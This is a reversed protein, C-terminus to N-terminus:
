LRPGRPQSRDPKPIRDLDCKRWFTATRTALVPQIHVGKVRKLRFRLARFAGKSYSPLQWREALYRVAQESDLLDEIRTENM